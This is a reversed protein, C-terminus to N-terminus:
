QVGAIKCALKLPTGPFLEYLEKVSIIGSKSISRMSLTEGNLVKDRIFNIVDIHKQTLTIGEEKAIEHAIDIQRKYVDSAASSRSHTYKTSRRRRLYFCCRM